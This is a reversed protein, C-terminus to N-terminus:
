LELRPALKAMAAAGAAGIERELIAVGDRALELRDGRFSARLPKRGEGDCADCTADSLVARGEGIYGVVKYGHGGCAKCPFERRQWSVVAAAVATAEYRRMAPRVDCAIALRWVEDALLGVVEQANHNDGALLRLLAMALPKQKGALGGAGLVDADSCETEVKSKLNRSRVASSYRDIITM